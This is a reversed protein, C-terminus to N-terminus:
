IEVLRAPDMDPCGTTGVKGSKYLVTQLSNYKEGYAPGMFDNHFQHYLEAPYFPFKNSDYVLVAKDGITDPEDGRGTFLQMGGPSEAAAKRVTEFMPSDQGGPLGLVSRYEGGRDQPDHRYGRSGFLDFYKKCFRPMASEPIELQVAEAHGLKGYDAFNRMNHYCIKGGDGLRQGGAYGSVATIQKPGRSLAAVEEGVFEHQVHWFCGAGFYVKVTPEAATASRPLAGAAVAGVALGLANRRSHWPTAAATAPATVIPARTASASAAIFRAPVSL